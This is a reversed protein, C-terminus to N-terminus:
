AKLGKTILFHQPYLLCQMKGAQVPNKSIPFDRRSDQSSHVDTYDSLTLTACYRLSGKGQLRIWILCRQWLNLKCVKMRWVKGWPLSILPGCVDTFTLPKVQKFTTDDILTERRLFFLLFERTHGFANRLSSQVVAVFYNGYLNPALFTGVKGPLM